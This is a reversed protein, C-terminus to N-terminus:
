APRRREEITRLMTDLANDADLLEMKVPVVALPVLAALFESLNIADKETTVFGDAESQARLVVFCLRGPPSMRQFFEAALDGYWNEMWRSPNQLAAAQSFLLMPVASHQSHNACAGAPSYVIALMKPRSWSSISIVPSAAISSAMM